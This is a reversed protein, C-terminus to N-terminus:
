GLSTIFRINFDLQASIGAPPGPDLGFALKGMTVEGYRLDVGSVSFEDLLASEVEDVLGCVRELASEAVDEGSGAKKVFATAKVTFEEEVQSRGMAEQDHTFDIAPFQIFETVRDLAVYGLQVAVGALGSRATIVDYMAKLVAPISSTSM